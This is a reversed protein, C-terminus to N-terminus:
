PPPIIYSGNVDGTALVRLILPSPPNATTLNLTQPEWVWDPRLFGSRHGSFRQSIHLADTANVQNSLNVDAALITLPDLSILSGFYRLVWLADTANVGGWPIPSTLGLQYTQAVPMPTQFFGNNTTTATWQASGSSIGQVYWGTLPSQNQNFYTIQGALAACQSDRCVAGRYLFSQAIGSPTTVLCASPVWNIAADGSAFRRLGLQLLTSIGTWGVSSPLQGSIQRRGNGVSQVLLPIGLLSPHTMHAGLFQVKMSDFMFEFGFQVLSGDLDFRVPISFSDGICSATPEDMILRNPLVNQHVIAPPGICFAMFRWHYIGGIEWGGASSPVNTSDIIWDDQMSYPFRTGSQSMWLAASGPNTMFRIRYVGSDLLLAIPIQHEGSGSIQWTRQAALTYTQGTPQARWIQLTGSAAGQSRISAWDWRIVRSIRTYYDIGQIPLSSFIGPYAPSDPLYPGPSLNFVYADAAEHVTYTLSRSAGPAIYRSGQNIFATGPGPARWLINHGTVAPNARLLASSDARVTAPHLSPIGNVPCPLFSDGLTVVIDPSYASCFWGHNIPKVSIRYTFLPRLQSGTYLFSTDGGDVMWEAITGTPRRVRVAYKEAGYVRRWRIHLWNVPHGSSSDAPYVVQTTGVLTDFPLMPPTMLYGRSPSPGSVTARMAQGQEGSFRNACLDYSYSMYLTEDPNFLDGNIDTATPQSPCNWRADRYDARTDCFRDGAMACNASYRPPPEQPNRTVREAWIASPQASTEEFPHPLNLFHGLEHALITNGIGACSIGLYVAGQRLPDNPMGTNPYNAFGCLGMVGLNVFYVNISRAVNYQDNLAFSSPYDPLNYYYTSFIYNVNGKLYFQLGSPRFKDNLECLTQLLVALDMTGGGDDRSLLHISLPLHYVPEPSEPQESNILGAQRMQEIWQLNQAPVPGSGCPLFPTNQAQLHTCLAFVFAFTNFIQRLVSIQPFIMVM